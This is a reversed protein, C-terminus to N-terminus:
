FGRPALSRCAQSATKFQPSDTHMSGQIGVGNSYIINASLRAGRDAHIGYDRNAFVQNHTASGVVIAIGEDSKLYLKWM